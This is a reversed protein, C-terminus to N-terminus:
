RDYVINVIYDNKNGDIHPDRLLEHRTDSYKENLSKKLGPLYLDRNLEGDDNFSAQPPELSDYQYNWKKWDRAM